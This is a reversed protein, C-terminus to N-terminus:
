LLLSVYDNWVYVKYIFSYFWHGLAYLYKKLQYGPRHGIFLYNENVFLKIDESM